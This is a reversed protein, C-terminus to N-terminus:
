QRTSRILMAVMMGLIDHPEHAMLKMPSPKANPQLEGSQYVRSHMQFRCTKQSLKNEIAKNLSSYMNCTGLLFILRSMSIRSSEGSRKLIRSCEKSTLARRVVVIFRWVVVICPFSPDLPHAAGAGCAGLTLLRRSLPLIYKRCPM